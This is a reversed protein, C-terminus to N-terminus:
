GEPHHSLMIFRPIVSRRRKITGGVKDLLCELARSERFEERDSGAKSKEGMFSDAAGV